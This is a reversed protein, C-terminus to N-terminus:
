ARTHRLVRLSLMVEDPDIADLPERRIVTVRGL